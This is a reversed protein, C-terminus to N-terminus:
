KFYKALESHNNTIFRVLFKNDSKEFFIYWTTTNNAKHFAFYSGLNILHEPSSKAPFDALEFEIFDYIKQVYIKSSRKSSFYKKEVLIEILNELYISANKQLIIEIEM